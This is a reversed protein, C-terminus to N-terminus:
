RSAVCQHTNAMFEIEFSELHSKDNHTRPLCVNQYMGVTMIAIRIHEPLM